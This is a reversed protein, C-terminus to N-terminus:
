TEQKPGPGPSEAGHSCGQRLQSTENWLTVHELAETLLRQVEALAPSDTVLVNRDGHLAFVPEGNETVVVDM